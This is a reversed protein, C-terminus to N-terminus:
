FLNLVKCTPVTTQKKPENAHRTCTEFLHHLLTNLVVSVEERSCLTNDFADRYQTVIKCCKDLWLVQLKAFKANSKRTDKEKGVTIFYCHLHFLEKFTTNIVHGCERRILCLLSERAIFHKFASSTATFTEEIIIHRNSRLHRKTDEM